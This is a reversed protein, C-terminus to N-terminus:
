YADASVIEGAARTGLAMWTQPNVSDKVFRVSGDGFLVNVGGPHYSQANSFTAENPGCSACTDNCTNWPALTMNPTAVTNMMSVGMSGWGWRAGGQNNNQKGTKYLTTCAQLAPLIVLQYSVSSANYVEAPGSHISTVGNVGNNRQNPSPNSPSGVLSETFLVTNSSGDLVNRLGFSIWYGFMGSTDPNCNPSGGALNFPDPQCLLYGGASWSATTAGMSARYSLINPPGVDAGATLQAQINPAGGFAANIDSPCIFTNIVRTFATANAAAGYGYVGSYYFNIANWVTGGELYQLMEAQASWEGWGAYPGSVGSGYNGPTAADSALSAGQPFSDTSSHYNHLALGIQKLNNLCQGRRAAERASQVAPLLLAILVAIIAIVVLLEILTFGQRIRTRM